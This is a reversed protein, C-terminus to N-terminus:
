PVSKYASRHDSVQGAYEHRCKLGIMDRSIQTDSLENPAFHIEPEERGELYQMEVIPVEEPNRILGWDSSDALFPPTLIRENHDGFLHFCPNITKTTLNDATYYSRTQNIQVAVTWQSVPVILSWEFDGLNLGIKDLSPGQEVMDALTTIASSLTSISLAASGLNGHGSSFWPTGDNSNANKAYFDWVYRAHSKRALSGLRDILTRILNIDDNILVRRSIPILCGKQLMDFSNAEEGLSPMDPYDETEPDIDPLEHWYGLFVFDAEHLHTARDRQSILRGEFYDRANYSMSLLRNLSNALANPFTGSNIDMSARVEPAMKGKDISGRFAGDGTYHISWDRLTSFKRLTVDPKRLGFLVDMEAQAKELIGM